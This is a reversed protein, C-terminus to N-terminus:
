TPLPVRKIQELAKELEPVWARAFGGLRPNGGQRAYTALLLLADEQAATMATIFQRDFDPDTSAELLNLQERYQGAKPDPERAPGGPADWRIEAAAAELADAFRAQDAGIQQAIQKVDASAAKVAGVRSAETAFETLTRAREVFAGDSITTAANELPGPAPAQGVAPPGVLLGAALAAAPVTRRM